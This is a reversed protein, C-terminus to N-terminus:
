FYVVSIELVRFYPVTIYITSFAFEFGNEGLVCQKMLSCLHSFIEMCTSVGKVLQRNVLDSHLLKSQICEVKDLHIHCDERIRHLLM